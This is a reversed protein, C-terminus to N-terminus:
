YYFNITFSYINIITNYKLIKINENILITRNVLTRNALTWKM